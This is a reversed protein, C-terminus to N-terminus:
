EIKSLYFEYYASDGVKFNVKKTNIDNLKNIEEEILKYNDITNNRNGHLMIQKNIIFNCFHKMNLLDNFILAMVGISLQTSILGNIIFHIHMVYYKKNGKNDSEDLIINANNVNENNVPIVDNYSINNYLMYPFNPNKIIKFDEFKNKIECKNKKDYNFEGYEEGEKISNKIEDLSKFTVVRFLNQRKLILFM